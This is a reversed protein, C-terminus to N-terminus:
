EAIDDTTRTFRVIVSIVFSDVMEYCEAIEVTSVQIKLFDVSEMKIKFRQYVCDWAIALFIDNWIDVFMSISGTRRAFFFHLYITMDMDKENYSLSMESRM